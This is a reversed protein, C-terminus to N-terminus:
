WLASRSGSSLFSIEFPKESLVILNTHAVVVREAPILRGALVTMTRSVFRLCM